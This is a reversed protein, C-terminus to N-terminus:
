EKLEELRKMHKRVREAHRDAPRLALFKEWAAIAEAYRMIQEYAMGLLYYAIAREPNLAITKEFAEIAERYKKQNLNTIGIGCYADVYQSNVKLAQNFEEIAKQYDGQNAYTVGKQFHADAETGGILRSFFLLILFISVFCVVITKKIM